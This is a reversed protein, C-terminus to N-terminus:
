AGDLDRVIYFLLYANADLVEREAVLVVKSDDFLFWDDAERSYSVYHGTDLKGKHVVVSSLEYIATSAHGDAKKLGEGAESGSQQQSQRQWRTTYPYMDLQLPFAIKADLKSSTAKSHEFRKLHIPLVPPLTQVSSRKEAAQHSDCNRCAYDAAALKEASTFRELCSQLNISEDSGAAAAAAAAAAATAVKGQAQALRKRRVQTRLDLSLDMIPDLATTVNYCNSCTVTSQLTGYFVQHIVCECDAAKHQEDDATDSNALHLSNLIFQMYEHADQQKHGALAQAGMWSGLLMGVAGYGEAKEYSYFEQFMEDMACSTCAERDCEASRHGEALYFAKIFPNHILSQLIVSMFCTQGMNYLGRLGNARCPISTSNLSVVRADESSYLDELKRKKRGCGYSGSATNSSANATNSAQKKMVKPSALTTSQTM